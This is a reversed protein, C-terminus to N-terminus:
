ETMGGTSKGGAPFCQGGAGAQRPHPRCRLRPNTCPRDPGPGTWPPTSEGPPLLRFGARGFAPPLIQRGSPAARRRLRARLALAKM